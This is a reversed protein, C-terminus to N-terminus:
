IHYRCTMKASTRYPLLLPRGILEKADNVDDDTIVLGDPRFAHRALRRIQCPPVKLASVGFGFVPSADTAVLTDAWPRALDAELLPSLVAFLLLERWVDVGVKRAENQPVSRTFHYVEHFASFAPRNLLCHWQVTGLFAALQCPSM